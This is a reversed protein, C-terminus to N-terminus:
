EPLKDGPLLGGKEFQFRREYSQRKALIDIAKQIVRASAYGLAAPAEWPKPMNYVPNNRATTKEM